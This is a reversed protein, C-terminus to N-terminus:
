GSRASRARKELAALLIELAAVPSDTQQTLPALAAPLAAWAFRDFTDHNQLVAASDPSSALLRYYVTYLQQPKRNVERALRLSKTSPLKDYRRYLLAPTGLCFLVALSVALWPARGVIRTESTAVWLIGNRDVFLKNVADVVLGSNLSTFTDLKHKSINYRILGPYTVIWLNGKSDETIQSAPGGFGDSNTLRSWEQGDYRYLGESTGFWLNAQSDEFITNITTQPSGKATITKWLGDEYVAVTHVPDVIEGSGTTPGTFGIWMRGRRDQTIARVGDPPRGDELVFEDLVNGDYRFLKSCRLSSGPNYRFIRPDNYFWLNGEGDAYVSNASQVGDLRLLEAGDFHWAGGKSSTM